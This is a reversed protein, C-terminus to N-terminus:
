KNTWKFSRLFLDFGVRLFGAIRHQRRDKKAAYKIKHLKNNIDESKEANRKVTDFIAGGVWSVM